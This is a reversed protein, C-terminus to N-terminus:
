QSIYQKQRLAALISDEEMLALFTGVLEPGFQTGASNKIYALADMLSWAAKYVRQSVLAFFVDVISVISTSLPLESGLKGWYGQGDWFEHHYRCVDRSVVGLDGQIGALMEAGITTHTKMIEFEEADM